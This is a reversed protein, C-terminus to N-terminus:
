FSLKVDSEENTLVSFRPSVLMFVAQLNTLSAEESTFSLLLRAKMAYHEVDVSPLKTDRAKFLCISSVFALVCAKASIAEVSVPDSRSEYALAITEPFLEQDVLPFVMRFASHTFVDFVTEM